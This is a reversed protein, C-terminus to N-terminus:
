ILDLAIKTHKSFGGNSQVLFVKLKRILRIEQKINWNRIEHLFSLKCDSYLNLKVQECFLVFCKNVSM